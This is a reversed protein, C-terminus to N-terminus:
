VVVGMRRISHVNDVWVLKSKKLRADPQIIERDTDVIRGTLISRLHM